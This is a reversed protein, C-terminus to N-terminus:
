KGFKSMFEQILGPGRSHREPQEYFTIAGFVGSCVHASFHPYLEKVDQGPVSYIADSMNCISLASTVYELILM